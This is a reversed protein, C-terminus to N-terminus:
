IGRSLTVDSWLDKYGFYDCVHGCCTDGQLVTLNINQEIPLWGALWGAASPWGVLWTVLYWGTLSQTPWINPAPPSPAWGCWCEWQNGKPLSRGSWPWALSVFSSQLRNYVNASHKTVTQLKTDASCLWINKCAIYLFTIPSHERWVLKCMDKWCWDSTNSCWPVVKSSSSKDDSILFAISFCDSFPVDSCTLRGLPYGVTWSSRIYYWEQDSSAEIPPMQSCTLRVWLTVVHWSSRIYYWEQDSSAEVPPFRVQLNAQVM